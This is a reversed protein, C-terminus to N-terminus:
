HGGRVVVVHTLNGRGGHVGQVSPGNSARQIQTGAPQVATFDETVSQEGIDPKPGVLPARWCNTRPMQSEFLVLHPSCRLQRRRLIRQPAVHRQGSAKWMGIPACGLHRMEEM